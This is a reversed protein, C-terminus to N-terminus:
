GKRWCDYCLRRRVTDGTPTFEFVVPAGVVGCVVGDEVIRGARPLEADCYYCNDALKILEGM